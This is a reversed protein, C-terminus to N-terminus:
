GPRRISEAAATDVGSQTRLRKRSHACAIRGHRVDPQDPLDGSTWGTYHVLLECRGVRRHARGIGIDDTNRLPWLSVATGEFGLSRQCGRGFSAPDDLRSLNPNGVIPVRRSRAYRTSAAELALRVANFGRRDLRSRWHEVSSTALRLGKGGAM